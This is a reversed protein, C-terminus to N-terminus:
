QATKSFLPHGTRRKDEYASTLAKHIRGVAHLLCSLSNDSSNMSGSESSSFAIRASFARHAFRNTVMSSIEFSFLDSTWSRDLYSGATAM